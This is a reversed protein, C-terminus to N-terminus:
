SASGPSPSRALSLWAAALPAAVFGLVSIWFGAALTAHSYPAGPAALPSALYALLSGVALVVAIVSVWNVVRAPPQRTRQLLLLFAPVFLAAELALLLGVLAVHWPSRLSSSGFADRPGATFHLSLVGNDFTFWPLFLGAICLAHSAILLAGAAAAGLHRRPAQADGMM